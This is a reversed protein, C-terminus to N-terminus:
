CSVRATGAAGMDAAVRMRREMSDRREGTTSAARMTAPIESTGMGMADKTETFTISRSNGASPFRDLMDMGRITATIWTGMFGAADTIGPGRGSLCGVMSRIRGMIGM